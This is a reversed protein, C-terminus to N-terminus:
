RLKSTIGIHLIRKRSHKLNTSIAANMKDKIKQSVTDRLASLLGAEMAPKNELAEAVALEYDEPYESYISQIRDIDPQSAIQRTQLLSLLDEFDFPNDMDGTLVIIVEPAELEEAKEESYIYTDDPLEDPFDIGYATTRQPGLVEPHICEYAYLIFKKNIPLM